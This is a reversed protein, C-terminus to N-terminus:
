DYVVELEHKLLRLVHAILLDDPLNLQDRLLIIDLECVGLFILKKREAARKLTQIRLRELRPDFLNLVRQFLYRVGLRLHDAEHLLGFLNDLGDAAEKVSYLIDDAFEASLYFDPATM